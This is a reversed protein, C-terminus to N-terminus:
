ESLNIELGTLRRQFGAFQGLFLPAAVKVNNFVDHPNLRNTVDLSFVGIGIKHRKSNEKFPMRVTFERSLKVDLSFYVPFRLSNPVGVYNQQVDVNSYPFGTHLDAVPSFIFKMPLTIYGWALVRNPVDSPQVGYANARIVPAQVPLFTDSLTNLDGRARSWAYSINLENRESPRYRVTFQAQEYRSSGTNELDMFGSTGTVPLIPNLVFLNVTHTAYFGVRLSIDKRLPTEAEINWTFTRTSSNHGMLTSSNGAIGPSQYVNQLTYSQPPLPPSFITIMREQYGAFDTALLPVHGYILGAGARVVLKSNAVSYALGVRPAFAVDRGMTQHTLRGGFNLALSKTLTWRDEAYESIETDGGQLKGSGLFVITKDITGNQELLNIPRSVSSGTFSRYLVDTGFQLQHSGLWSKAPLQLIPLAEVQNANRSFTNFYNGGWGEPNITMDLSGQGHESTYFNTYRVATTLIMGSDFQYADSIGVSVGRRRFNASATQPILTNINAFLITSPFDNVNVNLMHKPSFTWQFNTFSVLSYTVTENVPWSLGHVPDKRFEYTLTQSFNLKNKILPGGFEVGPTMNLLGILHDNKGRFSPVLDLLKFNWAPRPPKIEIRTLGGSFGGYASSDPTSFVQINQITNVPVPIAFSGSAPDVNEASDVLLMGQSEAQGNFNLKGEQTRIVSPSMSLAETFKQTRLPLEELQQDNVMAAASVSQTAIETAEGQVEIREEVSSIQLAVDETVAQGPELTVAATWPQFGELSTELNYNGPALRTFEYIGKFDTVTMKSKAGPATATLKVTIGALDDAAKKGAAATVKGTVSASAAQGAAGSQQAFGPIAWILIALLLAGCLPCLAGDSGNCCLKL